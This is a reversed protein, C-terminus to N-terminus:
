KRKGYKKLQKVAATVVHKPDFYRCECDECEVWRQNHFWRPEHEVCPNGCGSLHSGYVPESFRHFIKHRDKVYSTATFVVVNPTGVVCAFHFLGSDNNIVLRANAITDMAELTTLGTLDETGQVYEDPTGICAVKGFEKMAEAVEDMRGYKRKIWFANNTGGNLILILGNPKHEIGRMKLWDIPIEKKMIKTAEEDPIIRNRQEVENGNHPSTNYAMAEIGDYEKGRCSFYGAYDTWWYPRSNHEAVLLEGGNSKVVTRWFELTSVQFTPTTPLYAVDIKYHKSVYLYPVIMEIQNGMGDSIIYLYRKEM